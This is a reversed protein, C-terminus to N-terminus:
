PKWTPPKHPRNMRTRTRPVVVLLSKTPFESSSLLIPSATGQWTSTFQASTISSDSDEHIDGEDLDAEEESDMLRLEPEDDGEDEITTLPLGM